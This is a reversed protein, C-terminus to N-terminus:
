PNPNTLFLNIIGSGGKGGKGAITANYYPDGQIYRLTGGGGGGQGTNTNGNGGNANINNIIDIFGAGGYGNYGINSIYSFNGGRQSLGGGGGGGYYQQNNGYTGDSGATGIYNEPPFINFYRTSGGGGGQYLNNYFPGIINNYNYTNNLMYIDGPNSQYGNGYCAGASTNNFWDAPPPSIGYFYPPYIGGGNGGNMNENNELNHDGRNGGIGGSAFCLNISIDDIYNIETNDGYEGSDGYRKVIVGTVTGGNGGNGGKGIIFEFYGNTSIDISKYLTDGGAGGGGGGGFVNDQCLYGGAGGGGGGILYADVNFITNFKITTYDFINIQTYSPTIQIIEYSGTIIYPETQKAAFLQSFDTGGVKYNINYGISTHGAIDQFLNGLDIGNLRYNTTYPSTGSMFINSLDIGQYKYNTANM